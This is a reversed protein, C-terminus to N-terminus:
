DEQLGHKKCIYQIWRDNSAFLLGGAIVKVFRGCKSCQYPQRRVKVKDMIDAIQRLEDATLMRIEVEM